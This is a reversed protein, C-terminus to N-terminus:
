RPIHMLIEFLDVELSTKPSEIFRGIEEGHQRVIFTPVREINYASRISDSQGKARDVGCLRVHPNPVDLSDLIKFFQPVERKSDRCWTGFIITFEVSDLMARNDRLMEAHPKYASYVSDFWAYAPSQVDSREVWGLLMPMDKHASKQASQSGGCGVLVLTMPLIGLIQFGLRLPIKHM